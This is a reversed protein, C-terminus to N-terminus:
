KNFHKNYLKKIKELEPHSHIWQGTYAEFSEKFFKDMKDNGTLVEKDISKCVEDFEADSVLSVSEFEYAYAWISVLIRKRRELEEKTWM